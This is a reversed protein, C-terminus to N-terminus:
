ARALVPVQKHLAIERREESSRLMALCAELTALGWEGSHLPAADNLVAKYLEEVVEHRPIAPRDIQRLQRDTDSYVLVGQPTPRLDAHECSAVILGFHEHGRTGPQPVADNKAVGYGRQRRLEQEQAPSTERPLLHRTRLVSERDKPVGMESTWDLFEDSDFHAYGSYTLTAVVEDPFRIMASYAGETARSTDWVGTQAVVSEALGGALLRAIDVQHAAQNFVVGGGASTDLEEPRRPRYLFDTFNLATIMKLRGFEGTAIINRSEAIPADFSHSHGVLLKVGAKRAAGVMAQAEDLSVAMPKEVLVHKGAATAEIAQAAHYQHPSAIYIAEVAPDRLMEALTPYSTARFEEAFRQRAEPRPDTAAILEILPSAIFAPRMLTFARGLGIVGLRLKRESM